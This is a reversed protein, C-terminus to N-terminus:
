DGNRKREIAQVISGVTSFEALEVLTFKVQFDSEIQTVISIHALSDWGEINNATTQMDLQPKDTDLVDAIIIAIKDLLDDHNM